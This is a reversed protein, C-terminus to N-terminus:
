PDRPAVTALDPIPRPEPANRTKRWALLVALLLQLLIGCGILLIDDLFGGGREFRLVQAGIAVVSGLCFVPLANQGVMVLPRCLRAAFRQPRVLSAVVYALALFHLLRGLPLYSKDWTILFTAPGLDWRLWIGTKVSVLAVALYACCIALLAPRFGVVPRGEKARLGCLLGLVFLLQWSLPNLFWDDGNPYHPLNLHLLNSGLWLLVSGLVLIQRNRRAVAFAVPLALLLVIYLPLINLYGPQHTLALLGIVAPGTNAFLPALNIWELYTPDTARWAAAIIIAVAAAVSVLHALYLQGARRLLRRSVARPSEEFFGRSYALAAAYGALFVFIETADSFGFNRSTLREFANGPVHNVFIM